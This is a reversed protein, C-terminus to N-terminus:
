HAPVAASVTQPNLVARYGREAMCGKAVDELMGQRQQEIMAAGIAGGLGRYYIPAMGSASQQTHGKCITSDIEFKQMLMKNGSIRKGDYREWIYKPGVTQCGGLALTVGVLAIKRITM